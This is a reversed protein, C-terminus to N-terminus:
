DPRDNSDVTLPGRVKGTKDSISAMLYNREDLPPIIHAIDKGCLERANIRIVANINSTASQILGDLDTTIIATHEPIREFLLAYLQVGQLSIASSTLLMPVLSGDKHKGNVVRVSTLDAM